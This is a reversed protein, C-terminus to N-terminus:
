IGNAIHFFKGPYFGMDEAVPFFLNRKKLRLFILEPAAYIGAAVETNNHAQLMQQVVAAERNLSRPFLEHGFKGFMLVEAGANVFKTGFQNPQIEHHLLLFTHKMRHYKKEAGERSTKQM